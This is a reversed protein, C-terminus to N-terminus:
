PANRLVVPLYVKHAAVFTAAIVKDADMTVPAPNVMSQLDGTWHVFAWGLAPTASLTVVVSVVAPLDATVAVQGVLTGTVPDVARFTISFPASATMASTNALRATATITDGAYTADLTAFALDPLTAQLAIANNTEDMEAVLDDPDAV